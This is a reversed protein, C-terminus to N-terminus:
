TPSCWTCFTDRQLYVFTDLILTFSLFLMTPLSLRLVWPPASRQQHRGRFFPNFFPKFHCSHCEKGEESGRKAVREFFLLVFIKTYGQFSWFIVHRVKRVLKFPYEKRQSCIFYPGSSSSTKFKMISVKSHKLIRTKLM